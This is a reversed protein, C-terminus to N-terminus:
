SLPKRTGRIHVEYCWILQYNSHLPAQHPDAPHSNDCNSGQYPSPTPQLNVAMAEPTERRVAPFNQKPSAAQQDKTMGPPSIDFHTGDDFSSSM